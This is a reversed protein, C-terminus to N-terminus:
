HVRAPRHQFVAQLFLQVNGFDIAYDGGYTPMPM